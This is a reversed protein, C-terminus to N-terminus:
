PQWSNLFTRMADHDIALGNQGRLVNESAEPAPGEYISGVNHLVRNDSIYYLVGDTSDELWVALEPVGDSETDFLGVAVIEEEAGELLAPLGNDWFDLYIQQWSNLVAFNESLDDPLFDFAQRIKYWANERGAAEDPGYYLDYFLFRCNDELEVSRTCVVFYTYQEYGVVRLESDLGMGGAWGVKTLDEATFAVGWVYVEFTMSDLSTAFTDVKEFCTIEYGTFPKGYMDRSNDVDEQARTELLPGYRAYAEEDIVGDSRYLERVTDYLAKDELHFRQRLGKGDSYEVTVINEALGARLSLYEDKSSDFSEPGGSLWVEAEWFMWVYSPEEDRFIHHDGAANLVPVLAEPSLKYFGSTNIQKIDEPRMSTMREIAGSRAYDGDEIQESPEAPNTGCAAVVLVCLVVAALTVWVKPKKWRLVNKIRSKVGTEGFALPSPMPLHHNVAFSLLSISYAKAIGIEKELVKEDCSMEMDRNMLYFALWVLPNFWHVTLLLFAFAKVIHDRRRLHYQEHALVYRLTEEELGVPLYINPRFLGLIFPTRVRDTEYINDRMLVAGTLRRKMHLYSVIGYILLAAMGVCWLVLGVAIWIQMPNVSAAPNAAPMMSGITENIQTNGTNLQPQTMLGLNPPIDEMGGTQGASQVAAPRIAAFQFISFVTKFSVPCCLRFGVVGWVLYSWKKPAKRLLLRVFVVAIIVVAASISMNLVSLFVAEM